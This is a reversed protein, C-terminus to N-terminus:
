HAPVLRRVQLIPKRLEEFRVAGLDSEFLAVADALRGALPNLPQGRDGPRGDRYAGVM